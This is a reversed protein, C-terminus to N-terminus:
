KYILSACSHSRPARARRNDMIQGPASRPVSRRTSKIPTHDAGARNAKYAADDDARSDTAYEGDFAVVLEHGAGHLQHAKRALALFGFVGTLDRSHDRSTIRSPFGFPERGTPV